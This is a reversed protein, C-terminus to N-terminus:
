FRANSRWRGGPHSSAGDGRSPQCIGGAAVAELGDRVHTRPDTGIGIVGPMGLRRLQNSQAPFAFVADPRVTM